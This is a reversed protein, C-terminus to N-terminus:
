KGAALMEELKDYGAAVGREMGSAIAADRAEKSPYVETITVTTKGGQETLVLTGVVEGTVMDGFEMIETRVIREFPIIERYAGRIVMMTQGEPGGWEWRFSGGVKMDERCETMAWGPPSFLWRRILEPKTMAEWVLQRPADFSRTLVIVRDSPTTVKLMNKM